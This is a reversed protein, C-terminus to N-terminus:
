QCLDAGPHTNGSQTDKHSCKHAKHVARMCVRLAIAHKVHCALGAATCRRLVSGCPARMCGNGNTNQIHFSVGADVGSVTSLLGHRKPNQANRAQAQVAERLRFLGWLAARDCATSVLPYPPM